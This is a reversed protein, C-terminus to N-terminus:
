LIMLLIFHIHKKMGWDKWDSSDPKSKHSFIRWPCWIIVDFSNQRSALVDSIWSNSTELIYVMTSHLSFDTTKKWSQSVVHFGVAVTPRPPLSSSSASAASLCALDTQSPSSGPGGRQNEFFTCFRCFFLCSVSISWSLSCSVNALVNKTFQECKKRM